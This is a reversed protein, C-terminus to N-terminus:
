SNWVMVWFDELHDTYAIEDQITELYTFGAKQYAKIARKNRAAVRLLIRGSPAKQEIIRQVCVAVFAAGNGQGCLAPALSWGIWLDEGEFQCALHAIPTEGSVMCFQETGWTSRDMLWDTPYGLYSYEEYPPDYTWRCIQSVYQESLPSVKCNTFINEM